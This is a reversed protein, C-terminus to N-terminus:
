ILLPALSLACSSRLKAASLSSCRRTACRSPAVCSRSASSLASHGTAPAARDRGPRDAIPLAEGIVDSATIRAYPFRRTSSSSSPSPSAAARRPRRVTPRIAGSGRTGREEVGRDRGCRPQRRRAGRRRVRSPRTRTSLASGPGARRGPPLPSRSAAPASRCRARLAARETFLRRALPGLVSARM